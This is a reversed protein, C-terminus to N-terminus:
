RYPMLMSVRIPLDAAATIMAAAATVAAQPYGHGLLDDLVNRADRPLSIPRGNPVARTTVKLM